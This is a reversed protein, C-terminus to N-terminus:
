PEEERNGFGVGEELKQSLQAPDWQHAPEGSQKWNQTLPLHTPLSGVPGQCSGRPLSPDFYEMAGYCFGGYEM